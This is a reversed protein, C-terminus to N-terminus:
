GKKEAMLIIHYLDLSSLPYSQIWEAMRTARVTESAKSLDMRAKRLRKRESFSLQDHVDSTTERSFRLSDPM